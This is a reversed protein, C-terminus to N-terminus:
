RKIKKLEELERELREIKSDINFNSRIMEIVCLLICSGIFFITLGLNWKAFERNVFIAGATTISSIKGLLFLVAAIRHLPKISAVVINFDDNEEQEIYRM